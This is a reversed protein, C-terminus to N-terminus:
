FLPFRSRHSVENKVMFRTTERLMIRFLNKLLTNCYCYFMQEPAHNMLLLYHLHGIGFQHNYLIYIVKNIISSVYAHRPGLVDTALERARVLYKRAERM